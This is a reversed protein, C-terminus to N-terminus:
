YKAFSNINIDYSFIKKSKQYEFTFNTQVIRLLDNESFTIVNDLIDFQKIDLTEYRLTFFLYVFNNEFHLFM